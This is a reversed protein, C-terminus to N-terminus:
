PAAKPPLTKLFDELQDLRANWLRRQDDIWSEAPALANPDARCIRIRGQKESCILGATELKTLHALFTPLAMDFPEALASVSAPGQMLTSLVARRTPDSLAAFM